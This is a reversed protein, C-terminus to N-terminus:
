GRVSQTMQYALTTFSMQFFLKYCFCLDHGKSELSNLDKQKGGEKGAQTILDWGKL